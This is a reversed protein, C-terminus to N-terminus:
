PLCGTEVASPIWIQSTALHKGLSRERVAPDAWSSDNVSTLYFGRLRGGSKCNNLRRRRRKHPALMAGIVRLRNTAYVAAAVTANREHVFPVRQCV